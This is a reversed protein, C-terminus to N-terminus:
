EVVKLRRGSDVPIGIKRRKKKPELRCNSTKAYHNVTKRWGRSVLDGVAEALLNILRPLIRAPTREWFWGWFDGIPQLIRVVIWGLRSNM